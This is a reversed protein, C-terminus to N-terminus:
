LSGNRTNRIRAEKLLFLYKAESLRLENLVSESPDFSSQVLGKQLLLQEKITDITEILREDEEKRIRGKKRFFM